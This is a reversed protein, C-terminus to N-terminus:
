VSVALGEVVEELLQLDAVVAASLERYFLHLGRVREVVDAPLEDAPVSM